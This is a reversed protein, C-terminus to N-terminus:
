PQHYRRQTSQVFSCGPDSPGLPPKLGEVLDAARAGDLEGEPELELCSVTPWSTYTGHFLNGLKTIPFLAQRVATVAIAWNALSSPHGIPLKNLEQRTELSLLLEVIPFRSDCLM